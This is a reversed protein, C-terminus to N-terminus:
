AAPQARGVAIHEDPDTSVLKLVERLEPESLTDEPFFRACMLAALVITKMNATRWVRTVSRIRAVVCAAANIAILIVLSEM